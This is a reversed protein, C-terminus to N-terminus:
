ELPRGTMATLERVVRESVQGTIPLHRAREFKEIAASTQADTVGSPKIQGFGFDSLARQLAAIRPSPGILDAIPDNHRAAAIVAPSKPPNNIAAAAATPLRVPNAFFPAPHTGSQLFVANVVIVTCAAVATLIAATDVPRRLGRACLRLLVSGLARFVAAVM